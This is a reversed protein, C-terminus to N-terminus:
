ETIVPAAAVDALGVSELLEEWHQAISEDSQSVQLAALEAATDYWIGQSGLAAIRSIPEAQALSQSQESSPEIRQVWGDVFPSAPTLSGDLKLAFFWQYNQGVSLEPASEPLTIAMVGGTPSVPVTMQYVLNKAEDKLSFVGEQASSAPVYVLVTPRAQLTTGYFSEPMLALMSQLGTLSAVTGYTNARSAGGAAQQPATRSPPPTFFSGRSAGGTAQQPATRGPPPTFLGGRSAGGTAQRPASSGPPPTFFGGRSAGGTAQRPASSNPPPTFFGGRSAGGTAQRPAANNPPPTFSVAHAVGFQTWATASVLAIAGLTGVFRKQKM